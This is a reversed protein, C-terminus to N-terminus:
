EEDRGCPLGGPYSGLGGAGSALIRVVLGHSVYSEIFTLYISNSKKTM